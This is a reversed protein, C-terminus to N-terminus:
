AIFLFLFKILFNHFFVESFEQCDKRKREIYELMKKKTEFIKKEIRNEEQQLLNVRNQLLHAEKEIKQRNKKSTWLGVSEEPVLNNKPNSCNSIYGYYNNM